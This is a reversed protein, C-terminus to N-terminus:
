SVQVPLTHFEVTPSVRPQVGSDPPDVSSDSQSDLIQPSFPHLGTWWSFLLVSLIGNTFVSDRWKGPTAGTSAWDGRGGSIGQQEGVALGANQSGSSVQKRRGPVWTELSSHSM